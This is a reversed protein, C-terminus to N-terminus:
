PEFEACWDDAQVIPWVTVCASMMGGTAIPARRRCQLGTLASMGADPYTASEGRWRCVACCREAIETETETTM